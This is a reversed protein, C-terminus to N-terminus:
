LVIRAPSNSLLSVSFSTLITTVNFCKLLKQLVSSIGNCLQSIFRIKVQDSFHTIVLFAVPSASGLAFGATAVTLLGNLIFSVFNCTGTIM